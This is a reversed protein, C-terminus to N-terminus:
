DFLMTVPQSIYYTILLVRPVTYEPSVSCVACDIHAVTGTILFLREQISLLGNKKYYLRCVYTHSNIIPSRYFDNRRYRFPSNPIVVNEASLLPITGGFRTPSEADACCFRDVQPM